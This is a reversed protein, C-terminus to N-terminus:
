NIKEYFLIYPVGFNYVDKKFDSIPTVIADNYRYWKGDVPSKCTAVFHANPGSEGLHTIVGYLNYIIRPNDKEIVYNTIDITNQFDMKVKYINGKGRNLILILIIPSTYIKSTYLSDCLQKCLNCYNKNEGTLVETKQNYIFCDDINVINSPGQYFKYLNNMNNKNKMNKVEELPFIIVNFIGYNYCIPYNVGKYNKKCNLCINTTENFGYFLDSIISTDETFSNFFNKLCNKKDYQNLKPVEKLMNLKKKSNLSRSLEKHMQELVFIIFDKADGAEGRKFLPNMDNITKMFRNPAYYKKGGNNWLNQILELYVPSLQHEKPNSIAINNKIIKSESKEKLFYNTLRKTQSLCQLTSNMFCTAGINQLGILTPQKYDQISQFVQKKILEKELFKQNKENIILNNDGKNNNAQSMNQIENGNIPNRNENNDKVLSKLHKNEDSLEKIKKEKEKNEKELDKNNNELEKVKEKLNEIEKVNKILAKNKNKLEEKFEENEEEKNPCEKKNKNEKTKSINDNANKNDDINGRNKDRKNDIRKVEGIENKKFGTFQENFSIIALDSDNEKKRKNLMGLIGM